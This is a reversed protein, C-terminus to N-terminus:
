DKSKPTSINLTDQALSYDYTSTSVQGPLQLHIFHMNWEIEMKDLLNIVLM